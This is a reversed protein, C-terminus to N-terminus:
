GRSATEAASLDRGWQLALKMDLQIGMLLFYDGRGLPRPGM